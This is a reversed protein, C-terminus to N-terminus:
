LCDTASRSLTDVMNLPNLTALTEQFINADDSFSFWSIGVLRLGMMLLPPPHHCARMKQTPCSFFAKILSSFPLGKNSGALSSDMRSEELVHNVEDAVAGEEGNEEGDAEQLEKEQSVTGNSVVADEKEKEKGKDGSFFFRPLVVGDFITRRGLKSSAAAKSAAKSKPSYVIAENVRRIAKRRSSGPGPDSVRVRKDRHRTNYDSVVPQRNRKLSSPTGPATTVKAAKSEPISKVELEQAVEVTPHVIFWRNLPQWCIYVGGQEEVNKLFTIM